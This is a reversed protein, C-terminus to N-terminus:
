RRRLDAFAALLLERALVMMGAFYVVVGTVVTALLAVSRSAHDVMSVRVFLASGAMVATAVMIPVLPLLQDRLRQELLRSRVALVLPLTGYATLVVASAVGDIGWHAGILYAPIAVALQAGAIYLGISPRGLAKYLSADLRPLSFAPGGLALLEVVHIAPRWKEGLAFPVLLPACVALGVTAPLSVLAVYCNAQRMGRQLRELNDQVGAFAAFATQGIVESTKVIPLFVTRYALAYFGLPVAGLERGVVFNDFNQQGYTALRSGTVIAGFGALSRAKERDFGLAPRWVRAHLAFVWALASAVVAESLAMAVLAWVGGGGAAVSIGVIVSVVTAITSSIYYERMLLSRVLMDNPTREIGAFLFILSLVAVVSAVDKDGLISALVHSGGTMLVVLGLGSTASITFATTVHGPTLDRKQIIADSMGLGVVLQALNGVVMGLAFLGFDSPDVLRAMVLTAGFRVIVQVIQDIAGWRVGAAVKPRLEAGLSARGEAASEESV